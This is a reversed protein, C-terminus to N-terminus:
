NKKNAAKGKAKANMISHKIQFFPLPSQLPIHSLTGVASTLFYLESSYILPTTNHSKSLPGTKKNM